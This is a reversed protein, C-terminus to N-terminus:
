STSTCLNALESENEKEVFLASQEYFWHGVHGSGPEGYEDPMEECFLGVRVGYVSFGLERAVPVLVKAIATEVQEYPCLVVPPDPLEYAGRRWAELVEYVAEQLLGVRNPTPLWHNFHEPHMDVIDVTYLLSLLPRIYSPTPHLLLRLAM